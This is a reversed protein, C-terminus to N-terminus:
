QSGRPVIGYVDALVEVAAHREAPILSFRADLWWRLRSGYEEVTDLYILFDALGRLLEFTVYSASLVAVTLLIIPVM